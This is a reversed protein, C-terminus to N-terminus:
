SMWIMVKYHVCYKCVTCKNVNYRLTGVSKTTSGYVFINYCVLYAKYIDYVYQYGLGM